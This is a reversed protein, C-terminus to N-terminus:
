PFTWESLPYLVTSGVRPDATGISILHHGQPIGTLEQSPWQLINWDSVVHITETLTM